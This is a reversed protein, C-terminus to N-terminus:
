QENIMLEYVRMNSVMPSVGGAQMQRGGVRYVEKLVRKQKRGHPLESFQLGNVKLKLRGEMTPITQSAVELKLQGIPHVTFQAKVPMNALQELSGVQEFKLREHGELRVFLTGTPTVYTVRCDLDRGGQMQIAYHTTLYDFGTEQDTVM